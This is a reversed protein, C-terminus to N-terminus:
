AELYVNLMCMDFILKKGEWLLSNLHLPYVQNYYVKFHKLLKESLYFNTHAEWMAWNTFCRGATHSVHTWNRPWSTGRSFSIAAWELIRAQLIGHVSSGPLSCFNTYLHELRDCNSPRQCFCFTTPLFDQTVFKKTYFKTLVTEKPM